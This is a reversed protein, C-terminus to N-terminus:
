VREFGVEGAVFGGEVFGNEFPRGSWRALSGAPFGLLGHCLEEAAIGGWGELTLVVAEEALGDALVEVFGTGVAQQVLTPGGADFVEFEVMKAGAGDEGLQQQVVVVEVPGAVDAVAHFSGEPGRGCELLAADAEDIETDVVEVVMEDLVGGAAPEGTGWGGFVGDVDEAEVAGVEEGEAGEEALLEGYFM